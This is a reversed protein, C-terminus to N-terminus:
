RSTRTRKAPPAMEEMVQAPGKSLDSIGLPDGGDPGIHRHHPYDECSSGERVAVKRKRNQTNTRRKGKSAAPDNDEKQVEPEAALTDLISTTAPATSLSLLTNAAEVDAPRLNISEGVDNKLTSPSSAPTKSPESSSNTSDQDNTCLSTAHKLFINYTELEALTDTTDNVKNIMALTIQLQEDATMPSQTPREDRISSTKIQYKCPAVAADPPGCDDDNEDDDWDPLLDWLPPQRSITSEHIVFALLDIDDTVKMALRELGKGVQLVIISLKHEYIRNFEQLYRADEENDMPTRQNQPIAIVQPPAPQTSGAQTPQSAM